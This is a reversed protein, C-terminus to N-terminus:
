SYDQLLLVVYEVMSDLVFMHLPSRFVTIPGFCSSLWFLDVKAIGMLYQRLLHNANRDYM